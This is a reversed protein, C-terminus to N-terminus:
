KKVQITVTVTKSEPMYSGIGSATVKVRIKYIGKATKKKIKIKGSKKDLSLVKKAKKSGSAITYKVTGKAKKVAIPAVTKAKKKLDSAKIKVAKASVTIPNVEKEINYHQNITSVLKSPDYMPADVTGDEAVTMMEYDPKAGPDCSKYDSTTMISTTSLQYFNNDAPNTLRSVNCGGGGSTEGIVPIGAEKALCPTTNGCSFSHSTIMIAYNFDYKVEDDKEDIVGDLNKDASYIDKRKYGNNADIHYYNFKGGYMMALIYAMVQDSGGGNTTLDLVFNDCKNKKALELAENFPKEGSKMHIVDNTFGDFRFIATNAVIYLYAVEGATKETWTKVPKGFGKARLPDLKMNLAMKISNLKGVTTYAAEAAADDGFLRKYEKALETQDMNDDASLEMFYNNSFFAHGGDFLLCDLMFLGLVYEAKNTSSLYKKMLSVDIDKYVGGETLTKDFGSKVLKEVFEQSEARGPRGYLNELMFGLERYAYDAVDPERNIVNFQENEKKQVLESAESDTAIRVLYIIGDIYESYTLSLTFVDSITSLPMYVHEDEAYLDIGYKSLNYNTAPEEMVKEPTASVFDVGTGDFKGVIFSYFKDFTMTDAATDLKLESGTAGTNKNKGVVTYKDGTGTLTYDADEVYVLDLYQEVDVFPINPMDSRFMCTLETKKSDDEDYTTVQKKSFTKATEAKAIGPIFCIAGIFLAAVLLSKKM